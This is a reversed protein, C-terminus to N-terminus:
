LTKNGSEISRSVYILLVEASLNTLYILRMLQCVTVQQQDLRFKDRFDVFRVYIVAMCRAM